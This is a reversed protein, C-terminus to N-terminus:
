LRIDLQDRTEDQLQPREPLLSQLDLEGRLLRGVDVGTPLTPALLQAAEGAALDQADRVTRLVVAALERPAMRKYVGTPFRVDLIGGANGATVAVVQRPATATCSIEALLRQTTALASRQEQYLRLLDEYPSDPM